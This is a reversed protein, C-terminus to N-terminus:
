RLDDGNKFMVKLSDGGRDHNIFSVAMPSKASTFVGLKKVLFETAIFKPEIPVTFLVPMCESVVALQLKAREKIDDMTISKDHKQKEKKSTVAQSVSELGKTIEGQIVLENLFTGSLM